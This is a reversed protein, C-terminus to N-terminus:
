YQQPLFLPGLMGGFYSLSGVRFQLGHVRGGGGGLISAGLKQIGEYLCELSSTTQSSIQVSVYHGALSKQCPVLALNLM